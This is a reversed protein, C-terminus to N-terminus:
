TDLDSTTLPSHRMNQAKRSNALRQRRRHTLTARQSSQIARKRHRVVRLNTAQRRKHTSTARQSRHILNTVQRRKHTSTARQSRHVARTRHRTVGLNTAQRRRHTATARQSRHIARTRHRAVRLNTARRRKLASTARQSGQIARKPASRSRSQNNLSAQAGIDSTTLTTHSTETGLSEWILRKGVSTRRHRENHDNYPVNQHWAVRFYGSASAQADIDSTRLPTQCTETGLSESTRRKGVSTRRHRENHANDPM